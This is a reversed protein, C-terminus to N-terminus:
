DGEDTSKTVIKEELQFNREIKINENTWIEADRENKYVFRKGILRSMYPKLYPRL